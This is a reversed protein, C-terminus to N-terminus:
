EGTLRHFLGADIKDALDRFAKATKASGEAVCGQAAAFTVIRDLAMGLPAKVDKLMIAAASTVLQDCLQRQREVHENEITTKKPKLMTVGEPFFSKALKAAVRALVGM